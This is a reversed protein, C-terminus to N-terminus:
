ELFGLPRRLSEGIPSKLHSWVADMDVVSVELVTPDAPCHPGFSKAAQVAAQIHPPTKEQKLGQVLSAAKWVVGSILQPLASM